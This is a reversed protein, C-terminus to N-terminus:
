MAPATQNELFEEPLKAKKRLKHTAQYHDSRYRRLQMESAGWKYRRIADDIAEGPVNESEHINGHALCSWAKVNSMKKYEQWTSAKGMM